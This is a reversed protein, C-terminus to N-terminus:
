AALIKDLSTFNPVTEPWDVAYRDIVAQKYDDYTCGIFQLSEVMYSYVRVTSLNFQDQFLWRTEVDIYDDIMGSVAKRWDGTLASYGGSPDTLRAHEQLCDESLKIRLGIYNPNNQLYLAAESGTNDYYVGRHHVYHASIFDDETPCGTSVYNYSYCTGLLFDNIDSYLIHSM